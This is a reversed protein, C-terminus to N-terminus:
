SDGPWELRLIKGCMEASAVPARRRVILPSHFLFAPLRSSKLVARAHNHACAYFDVSMPPRPSRRYVSGFFKGDERSGTFEGGEGSSSRQGMATISIHDIKGCSSKV